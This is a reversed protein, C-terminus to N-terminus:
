PELSKISFKPFNVIVTTAEPPKMELYVFSEITKYWKIFVCVRPTTITAFQLYNTREIIENNSICTLARLATTSTASLISPVYQSADQCLCGETNSLSNLLM